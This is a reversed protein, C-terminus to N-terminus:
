GCWIKPEIKPITTLFSEREEKSMVADIIVDSFDPNVWDVIIKGGPKIVFRQKSNQHIQSIEKENM